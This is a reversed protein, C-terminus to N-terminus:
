SGSPCTMSPNADGCLNSIAGAANRFQQCTLGTQCDANVSCPSCAVGRPALTTPPPTPLVNVVTVDPSCASTALALAFFWASKRM